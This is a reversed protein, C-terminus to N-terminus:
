AKGKMAKQVAKEGTDAEPASLARIMQLLEGLEAKLFDLKQTDDMGSLNLALQPAPAVANEPKTRKKERLMKRAGAIKFGQEYLLEKITQVEDIDAPRYRRSGTRTKRPKLSPNFWTRIRLDIPHLSEISFGLAQIQDAVATNIFEEARWAIHDVAFAGSEPETGDIIIQLPLGRLALLDSAFAPSLILAAKIESHMLLNEIEDLTSVQAYLQLDEGATIQQVFSRSLSSRDYDLVAIPVNQIDVTLAYAMLLLLATPTILVLILTSRDRLIHHFEKRTVAWIHRLNM